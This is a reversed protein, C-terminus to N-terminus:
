FIKNSLFFFIYYCSKRVVVLQRFTAHPQSSGGTGDDEADLDEEERIIAMRAHVDIQRPRLSSRRMTTPFFEVCFPAQYLDRSLGTAEVATLYITCQVM